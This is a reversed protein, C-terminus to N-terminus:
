CKKGRLWDAMLKFFREPQILWPLFMAHSLRGAEPNLNHTNYYFKSWDERGVMKNIADVVDIGDLWHEECLTFRDPEGCEDKGACDKCWECYEFILKRDKDTM